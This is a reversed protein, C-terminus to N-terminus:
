YKITTHLRQHNPVHILTYTCGKETYYQETEANVCMCTKWIRNDSATTKQINIDGITNQLHNATSVFPSILKPIIPIYRKLQNSGFQMEMQTLEEMCIGTLHSM